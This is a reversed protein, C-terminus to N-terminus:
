IEQIQEINSSIIYEYANNIVVKNYMIVDDENLIVINDLIKKTIIIALNTTLPYYIEYESDKIISRYGDSYTNNVPFDSTLFLISTENKLFIIKFNDNAISFSTNISFLHMLLGNIEILKKSVVNNLENGSDIKFIDQIKKTRFNQMMLYHLFDFRSQYDNFFNCDFRYLSILYKFGKNEINCQLGEEFNRYREMIKEDQFGEEILLNRENIVKYFLEYIEKHLIKIEEISKKTIFDNALKIHDINIAKLNYMYNICLIKKTSTHLIKDDKLAFIKKNKVWPELYKQWVYHQKKTAM